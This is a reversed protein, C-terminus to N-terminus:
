RTARCGSSTRSTPSSTTPSRSRPPAMCRRSSWTCRAVAPLEEGRGAGAPRPLAVLVTVMADLLGEPVEAGITTSDGGAHDHPARRQAGADPLPRAPRAHRRRTGHVDRDPPSAGPSDQRRGQRAGRHARRDDPRALQSLGRGQRRRRRGRGLGRLGHDRDGRGRARRRERRGPDDRGVAHARDIAVDIHLGHNRLLVASPSATPRHAGRVAGPGAVRRSQRRRRRGAPRRGRRLRRRRRPVRRRAPRRRRPLRPVLRDGRCRPRPRVARTAAPAAACRHRLARRVLVGMPRQRRQARLPREHGAGRAAARGRRRDRRRRSETEITFPPGAPELYGIEELFARYHDHDHPRGLPGPALRRDRGAARRPPRAARRQPPRVSRRAGGPRVLVGGLVRRQGAAGRGRRLRPLRAGGAARRADITEEGQADPM